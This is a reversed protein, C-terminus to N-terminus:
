GRRGRAPVFANWFAIEHRLARGFVAALAPGRGAPAADIWGGRHPVPGARPPAAPVDRRGRYLTDDPRRGEAVLRAAWDAYTGETVYLAAAIEEFTGRRGIGSLFRAFRATVPLPEPRAEAPPPAGLEEFVRKFLDDEAGLLTQLFAGLPRAEAAGPAKAIGYAVTRTLAEVFLYDQAMYAAFAQRPLPGYGRAPVVPHSVGSGWAGKHRATRQEGRSM